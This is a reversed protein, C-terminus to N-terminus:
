TANGPCISEKWATNHPEQWITKGEGKQPETLYIHVAPIGKLRGSYLDRTADRHSLSWGAASWNLHSCQKFSM